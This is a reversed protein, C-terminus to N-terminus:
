LGLCPQRSDLSCSDLLLLSPFWSVIDLHLDTIRTFPESLTPHVVPVKAGVESVPGRRGLEM